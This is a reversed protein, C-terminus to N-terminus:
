ETILYGSFSCAPGSAGQMWVGQSGAGDLTLSGDPSQAVWSGDDPGKFAETNTATAGSATDESIQVDGDSINQPVKGRSSYGQTAAGDQSTSIFTAAQTNTGNIFCHGTITFPGVTALTVTNPSASSAGATAVTTRWRILGSLNKANDASLAHNVSLGPARKTVVRNAVKKDRTKESGRAVAFAGGGVAVILAIMSVVLAPSPRRPKPFSFRM